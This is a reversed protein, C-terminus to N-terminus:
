ERAAHRIPTELYTTNGAQPAQGPRIRQIAFPDLAPSERQDRTPGVIEAEQEGVRNIALCPGPLVEVTIEHRVQQQGAPAQGYQIQGDGPALRDRVLGIIDEDDEVAGDVIVQFQPLLQLPEPM